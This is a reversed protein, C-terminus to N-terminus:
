QQFSGSTCLPKTSFSSMSLSVRIGFVVGSGGDVLKYIGDVDALRQQFVSDYAM